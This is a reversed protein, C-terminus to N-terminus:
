GPCIKLPAFLFWAKVLRCCLLFFVRIPASPGVVLLLSCRINFSYLLLEALPICMVTVWLYLILKLALLVHEESWFLQPQYFTLQLARRSVFHSRQSPFVAHVKSHIWMFMWSITGKLINLCLRKLVSKFLFFYNLRSSSTNSYKNEQKVFIFVGLILSSRLLWQVFLVLRIFLLFINSFM